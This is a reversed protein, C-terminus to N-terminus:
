QVDPPFIAAERVREGDDFRVVLVHPSSQALAYEWSRRNPPGLLAEVDDLAMGKRILPILKRAPEQRVYPSAKFERSATAVVPDNSDGSTKVVENALDSDVETVKGAFDFTVVLTSSYFLAYDSQKRSPPGLLAHVDAAAKGPELLPLLKRAPQLRDPSRSKFDSVAAAIEPTMSRDKGPGQRTDVVRTGCGPVALAVIVAAVRKVCRM